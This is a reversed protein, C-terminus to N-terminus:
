WTRSTPFQASMAAHKDQRRGDGKRVNCDRCIVRSNQVSDEGGQAVTVIHDVEASEPRYPNVYDLGRKCDPCHTLGQARAQKLVRRRINKWKGTGTRNTAM